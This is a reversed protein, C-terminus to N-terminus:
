THEKKRYHRSIDECLMTDHALGSAWGWPFGNSTRSVISSRRYVIAADDM